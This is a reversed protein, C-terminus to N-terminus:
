WGIPRTIVVVVMASVTSVVANTVGIGAIIAIVVPL